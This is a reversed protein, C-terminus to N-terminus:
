PSPHVTGLIGSPAAAAGAARLRCVQMAFAAEVAPLGHGAAEIMREVSDPVAGEPYLRRAHGPRRDPMLKVPRLWPMPPNRWWAEGPSGSLSAGHAAQADLALVYAVQLALSEVAMDIWGRGLSLLDAPPEAGSGGGRGCLADFVAAIMAASGACVQAQGLLWQQDELYALFAETDGLDTLPTDAVGDDALLLACLVQSFGLHSKFMASVARPVATGAHRHHFVLPAAIAAISARFAAHVTGQLGAWAATGALVAPWAATVQRLASANMPRGKRSGAHPCAVTDTAVQAYHASAIEGCPRGDIDLLDATAFSLLGDIM